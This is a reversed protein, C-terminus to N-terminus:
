VTLAWGDWEQTNVRTVSACGCVSPCVSPVTQMDSAGTEWLPVWM